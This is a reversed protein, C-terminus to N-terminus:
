RGTTVLQTTTVRSNWYRKASLPMTLQNRVSTVCAVLSFMEHSEPRQVAIIAIEASPTQFPTPQDIIIKRAASWPTEFSRRSAASSSPAPRQFVNRAAIRGAM